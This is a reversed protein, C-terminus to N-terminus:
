AAVELSLEFVRGGEIRYARIPVDDGVPGAILHVWQPDLAGAVDSASPVASSEPHSHFDGGIQWGNREAHEIARYHEVPHVTFRDAAAAANTLCYAMRLVGTPDVALLGCAEEPYCWRAHAEIALRIDDPVLVRGLYRLRVKM